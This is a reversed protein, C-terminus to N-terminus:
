SGAPTPYGIGNTGTEIGSMAVLTEGKVRYVGANDIYTMIGVWGASAPAKYVNSPGAVFETSTIGYALKDYGATLRTFQCVADTAVGTTCTSGLGVVYDSYFTVATGSAVATDITSALAVKTSTIWSITHQTTGAIIYNNEDNALVGPPVDITLIDSGIGSTATAEATASGISVVLIEDSGNTFTDGVQLPPVVSNPGGEANYVPVASQGIAINTTAAGVVLNKYTPAERNVDSDFSYSPDTVTFDPLQSIYFEAGAIDEGSLGMTNGITLSITSAISIINADGYFTSGSGRTGFRIVDGTAAAGVGSGFTTGKGTVTYNGNSDATWSLSVTGGSGVNDNNGWLAM